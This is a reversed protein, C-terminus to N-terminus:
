NKYTIFNGSDSKRLRLWEKIPRKRVFNRHKPTFYEDIQTFEGIFKGKEKLFELLKKTRAVKVQIEIETDEM